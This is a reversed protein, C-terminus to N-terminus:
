DGETPDEIADRLADTQARNEYILRVLWYRFWRTLSVRVFVAVAGLALVVGLLALIVM